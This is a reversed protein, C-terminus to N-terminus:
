ILEPFILSSKLRFSCKPRDLGFEGNSSFKVMCISKSHVKEEKLGIVDFFTGQAPPVIVLQYIYRIVHMGCLCVM